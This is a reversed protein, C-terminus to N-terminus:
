LLRKRQDAYMRETYKGSEFYNNKNKEKRRKVIKMQLSEMGITSFLLVRQSQDVDIPLEHLLLFLLIIHLLLPLLCTSYLIIM